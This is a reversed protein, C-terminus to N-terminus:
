ATASFTSIALTRAPMSGRRTYTAVGAMAGGITQVIGQMHHLLSQTASRIVASETRVQEMRQRLEQRLVLVRGRAPEQLLEALEGMRLPQTAGPRLMLTIEAMVRLRRKEMEGISQIRHNEVQCIENVKHHDAARVAQRKQELLSLLQEHAAVM